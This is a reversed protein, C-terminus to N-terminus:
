TCKLPVSKSQGAVMRALGEELKVKPEWALLRRAVSTDPRRRSPDDEPRPALVMGLEPVGLVSKVVEALQLVAIEEQSGINVPGDPPTELTMLRHLADVTDSVYCFSRTQTGDGHITLPEGAQAQRVLTSVVRGDDPDMDVGYTNFIRAVRVDTGARKFDFALTEAVRKGEDYCARPGTCSVSGRYTEPQPTVEPDGYVESTSAQLFRAKKTRALTLLNRTGIFCTEATRIPDTQYKPPSAPCALNYVQRVDLLDLRLPLRIDRKVLVFRPNSTLDAINSHRGTSLDDVCVVLSEKQRDLIHRCLHSGIFGCGGAVLVAPLPAVSVARGVDSKWDLAPRDIQENRQILARMLVPETGHKEMETCLGNTDKPFCTGGYGRKGDPGPVTLHSSGIRPDLATLSAASTYDIGAACCYKYMENAFGVKMALFCNRFYKTAEASKASVFHLKDHKIVGHEKAATFARGVLQRFAAVAEETCAAPEGFVWHECDKFDQRWNKETLFEPMFFCSLRDCTGPPVTSRVVIRTSGGCEKQLEGVVSEVIRLDVSADAKAPTPVAVFVLDCGRLSGMNAVGPSCLAPNKDFVKVKVGPCALLGTAKGVFGAGVIGIEM